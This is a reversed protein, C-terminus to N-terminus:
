ALMLDCYDHVNKLIKPISLYKVGFGLTEFFFKQGDGKTWTISNNVSILYNMIGIGAKINNFPDNLQTATFFTETHFSAQDVVNLQFFGRALEDSKSSGNVDTTTNGPKWDCEFEAVRCMMEGLASVRQADTMEDFRPMVKNIDKCNFWATKNAQICACLYQSWPQREPHTGQAVQGDDIAREWALPMVPLGLSQQIQKLEPRTITFDVQFKELSAQTMPGPNGDVILHEGMTNMQTQLAKIMDSYKM